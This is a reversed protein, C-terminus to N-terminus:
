YDPEPLAVGSVKGKPTPARPAIVPACRDNDDSDPRGRLPEYRDFHMSYSARGETRSRVDTAYGLMESLREGLHDVNQWSRGALSDTRAADFPGGNRPEHTGEPALPIHGEKM